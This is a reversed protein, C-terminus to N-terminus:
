QAELIYTKLAIDVVGNPEFMDVFHKYMTESDDGEGLSSLLLEQSYIAMDEMIREHRYYALLDTNIKTKGYGEYFLKEEEPNNWINGIGGGIFMLDREKPAMIPQDWDVIYIQDDNTILVNGAHIDAHCLVNQPSLKKVKHALQETREILRQITNKHKQMFIILEIAVKGTATQAANIHTYVLRVANYWESSYSEKEIYKKISEPVNFEHIKKMTKGLTIWQDDTLAKGFGDQGDIFPYVILTFGDIQHTPAGQTTKVPPVIHKISSEHLALQLIVGIDRRQGRRLKIFYSLQNSTEAKYVQANIDAGLLIPTLTAVKIGYSSNLRDIILQKSPFKTEIM